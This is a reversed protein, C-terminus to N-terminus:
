TKEELLYGMLTDTAKRFKSKTISASMPKFMFALAFWPREISVGNRLKVRYGNEERLISTQFSVSKLYSATGSGQVETSQTLYDLKTQHDTILEVNQRIALDSDEENLKDTLDYNLTEINGRASKLPGSHIEYKEKRQYESQLKEYIWSIGDPRSDSIWCSTRVVANFVGEELTPEEEWASEDCSWKSVDCWSIGSLLLLLIIKKM